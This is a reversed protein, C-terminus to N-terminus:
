ADIQQARVADDGLMQKLERMLEDDVLTTANPYDLQVCGVDSIINFRFCDAGKREDLMHYVERMLQVDRERNGSCRLDLDLLSVRVRPSGKPTDAFVLDTVTNCLIQLDGNRQDVDGGIVVMRDEVLLERFKALTRPFVVVSISSNLDELEIFAMEENNRTMTHQVRTVTGAITVAQGVFSEDIQNLWTYRGGGNAVLIKLPHESIYTGLLEKEWTLIQKQEIPPVFRLDGLINDQPMASAAFALQGKEAALHHVQSMGMM